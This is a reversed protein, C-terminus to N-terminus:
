GLDTLRVGLHDGVEILEGRAVVKGGVVLDVGQEISRGLQLLNGPKLGLLDQATIELRGVEVKIRIPVQEVPIPAAAPEEEEEVPPEEVAEEEFEEELIEEDDYHEDDM